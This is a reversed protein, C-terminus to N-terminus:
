RRRRKISVLRKKGIMKTVYKNPSVKIATQKGSIYWTVKTGVPPANPHFKAHRGRRSKTATFTLSWTGPGTKNEHWRANNYDWHHRYGKPVGSKRRNRRRARRYGRNKRGYRKM